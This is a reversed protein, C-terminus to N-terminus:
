DGLSDLLNHLDEISFPKQLFGSAGKKRIDRLLNKNLLKGSMMIVKIKPSIEKIKELVEIGQLEVLIVNLFVIDFSNTKVLSIAQRGTLVTKVQHSELSFWKEFMRCIEKENDVVLINLVRSKEM